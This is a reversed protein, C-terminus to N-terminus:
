DAHVMTGIGKDTFIELLIPHPITGDLIHVRKVGQQCAMVASALGAGGSGVVVLDYTEDWKAPVSCVSESRAPAAQAASGGLLAAAGAAAGSLMHRRSLSQTM